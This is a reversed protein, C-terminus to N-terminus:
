IIEENKRPSDEEEESEESEMDLTISEPIEIEPITFEKKDFWSTFFDGTKAENRVIIKEEFTEIQTKIKEFADRLAYAFMKDGGFCDDLCTKLLNLTNCPVYNYMYIDTNELERRVQEM